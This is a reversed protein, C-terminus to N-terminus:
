TAFVTDKMSPPIASTQSVIDFSTSSESACSNRTTPESLQHSIPVTPTATDTSMKGKLSLGENVHHADPHLAEDLDDDGDWDFDNDDENDQFLQKRKAEDAEIKSKHYLYRMWFEQYSIREPVLRDM